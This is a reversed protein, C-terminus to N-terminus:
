LRRGVRRASHDGEARCRAGTEAAFRGASAGSRQVPRTDAGGMEQVTAMADGLEFATPYRADAAHGTDSHLGAWDLNVGSVRLPNGLFSLGSESRKVFDSPSPQDAMTDDPPVAAQAHAAGALGLWLAFVRFARKV